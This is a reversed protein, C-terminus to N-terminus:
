ETLSGCNISQETNEGIVDRDILEGNVPRSVLVGLENFQYKVKWIAQCDWLHYLEHLVIYQWLYM